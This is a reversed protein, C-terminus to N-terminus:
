GLERGLGRRLEEIMLRTEELPEFGKRGYHAALEEAVMLVIEDLSAAALARRRLEKASRRGPELLDAAYVAKAVEDLAPGGTIHCRVARLVVPDHVGCERLLAEGAAGHMLVPHVIAARDPGGGCRAALAALREEPLERAVDHALGAVFSRQPDFGFREALERAYRAVGLSHLRREPSLREVLLRIARVEVSTCGTVSL